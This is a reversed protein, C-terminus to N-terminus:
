ILRCRFKTANKRSLMQFPKLPSLSPSSYSAATEVLSWLPEIISLYPSQAPWLFINCNLKITKLGHGILDERQSFQPMAMKSFQVVIRLYRRILALARSGL